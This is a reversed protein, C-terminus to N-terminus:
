KRPQVSRIKENENTCIHQMEPESKWPGKVHSLSGLIVELHDVNEM